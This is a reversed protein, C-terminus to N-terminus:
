GCAELLAAPAALFLERLRLRKDVPFEQGTYMDRFVKGRLRNPLTLETEGWGGLRGLTLLFRGVVALVARGRYERAFAVVHRRRAGTARLPRYSGEVFLDQERQRLRLGRSTMWLKVRGDQWREMAKRLVAGEESDLDDLLRRRAEYDVPRRNDPDVLSFEWLESGQYFDPVGPSAIKLTLQSLANLMGAEAVPAHFEGLDRIFEESDLISVLFRQTAEEYANNPRVWSSHLKAERMAKILYGCLRERYADDVGALPWTGVLTQYILYEDNRSPPGFRRNMGHWRQVATSWERPIESLVNIRARVDEGRKTDHTSTALMAHPWDKRRVASKEHFVAVPTGFQAPEGGVDNLSALPFYRYYLTDELGRAMVPGTFQQLRMVFMRREARQEASLGVPDRLLLVDEIFAFVDESLAPNRQRAMEVAALIHRADEADPMETDQRVYTRYIPFCTVVERLADRLNELTFDRSARLSNAIRDLRRALVNLESSMSVQLVLKKSAYYLEEYPKDLSTFNRYLREFAARHAGDVFIGNLFNLFGYGTTGQIDWRRLDEDGVVIKEAVVYFPRLEPPVAAQLQAFFGAPDFLGDPHDVRLGTVLGERIFGLVVKHVAAFVVPDEVRIAALDNIDFFRRYNIEDAAVRWFALRYAQEDLIRELEDFSAPDGAMGNVRRLAEGVAARAAESSDTWVDLRRKIVEKERYRERVREPATEAQSPLYTLATLISRGEIALESDQAELAEVAPGLVTRWSRPALPLRRGYLTLHFAGGEYGLQIEGAELVRGFQDGLVPLLVKNALGETPPSWDIDFYAAHASGPGNEMVDLWAPNDWGSVCMHNPVIDVMVGMGGARAAGALARLGEEGGLDPNVRGHDIVDYGHVSGPRAALIPSLYVDSVGLRRVYELQELAAGFPFQENLQFRYTSAPLRSPRESM